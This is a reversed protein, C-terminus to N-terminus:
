FLILGIIGAVPIIYVPDPNYKIVIALIVIFLVITKYSIGTSLLITASASLIMGIIAPRLGKFAAKLIPSGNISAFFRTCIIMLFATPLFISLTANLAGLFGALRFGIFTASIFIPGPTVQGLAIADVFEKNTLWHLTDVIIKQMSPIVVYGGGFLSLSMGSFTLMIKRHLWFPASNEPIIAPLFIFLVLLALVVTGTLTFGKSFHRPRISRGVPDAMNVPRSYYLLYGVFASVIIIGLTSLYSKSFFTIVAALAVLIYQKCDSVNKKIMGVAVSIIIASVAPLVGSFFAGFEPVNGFRFYLESLILMLLFAPLLIGTISVLAGKTGKLRYGIFAIVNVAIPGPLVSAMSIGDLVEENSILKDKDVVQKQVASILSMFGGFSISGIKLFTFFLYSLKLPKQMM